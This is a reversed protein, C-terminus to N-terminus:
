ILGNEVIYRHADSLIGRNLVDKHSMYFQNSKKRITTSVNSVVKLTSFDLDDGNFYVEIYRNSSLGNCLLLDIILTGFYNQKRLEDQLVDIEDLPSIYSTSLVICQNEMNFKEIFFNKM